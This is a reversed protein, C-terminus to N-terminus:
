LVLEYINRGDVHRASVHRCLGHILTIGLGGIASEDDATPSPSAALDFAAAADSYRLHIGDADRWLAIDVTSSGDACQGHTITNVYLEEIILALRAAVAESLGIEGAARALAAQVAPLGSALAPLSFDTSYANM